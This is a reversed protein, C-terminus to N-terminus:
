SNLRVLAITLGAGSGDLYVSGDAQNFLAPPFRPLVWEGTTADLTFTADAVALGKETAPTVATITRTSGNSNKAYGIINGDNVFYMGNSHDFSVFTPEIGALGAMDQVTIAVRAM